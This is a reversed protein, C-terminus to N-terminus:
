TFHNGPGVLGITPVARSRRIADGVARDRQSPTTQNQLYSCLVPVWRQRDTMRSLVQVKERDHDDFVQRLSPLIHDFSVVMGQVDYFVQTQIFKTPDNSRHVLWNFGQFLMKSM